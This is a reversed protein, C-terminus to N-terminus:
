LVDEVLTNYVDELIDQEIYIEVGDDDTEPEMTYANLNDAIYDIKEKITELVWAWVNGKLIDIERNVNVAGGNYEIDIGDVTNNSVMQDIQTVDIHFTWDRVYITVFKDVFELDPTGYYGGSTFTKFNDMLFYEIAGFTAGKVELLLNKRMIIM